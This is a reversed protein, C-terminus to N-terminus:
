AALYRTNLVCLFEKGESGRRGVHLIRDFVKHVILSGLALEAVVEIYAESGLVVVKRGCGEVLEQM